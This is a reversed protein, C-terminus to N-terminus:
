SAVLMGSSSRFKEIAKLPVNKTLCDALQDESAVFYIETEGREYFERIYHYRIEIHKTRRDVVPNVSLFISGQNDLCLPTPSSMNDGLEDGFHRLWAMQRCTDSAAKYEAETSSLSVTPQRRSAWSIVCNAMMFIFGSTSHRDDRDEAWDSDSYAILGSNSGGDYCLAFRKTGQLYRLVYFALRMHEKSPNSSFKALRTVAFAIDPRTGLMAYMISGIISQYKTRFEETATETSSLLNAGAPLPTRAEKCNSMGFRELVTELYDEQDVFLKRTSRERHIRLGLFRQVAGLDTMQYERSLREKVSDIFPKSDGLLLLDDVYLIVVCTHDGSERTYVYVGADSYTRTFGLGLLSTHIKANWQRSAQKLGYIAKLLLCVHDEKGPVVWGEPQEMYIEEDLDGNLFATKVDMSEIEWDELAAHALLYRVSEFRAVPSFTEHYDQGWVQTFGKAVVRAKYRGDHKITYVWRNKIVKRNKPRPVLIWTKNEILSDYESKEAGHWKHKDPSKMAESHSQPVGHNAEAVARAMMLVEAEHRQNGQTDTRQDISAPPEDGYVNDRNRAPNRGAGDRRPRQYQPQPPPVPDPRPQEPPNVGVPEPQDEPEEPKDDTPVPVPLPKDVDEPELDSPDFQPPGLSKPDHGLDKRAPFTEEDFTVDRSVVIGRTAPNWFRYGKSGQEYGVFIMEVAKKDLKGSRQEKPVHVFAKCGFVRFYSIDPITGDWLTIPCQWKLRRM